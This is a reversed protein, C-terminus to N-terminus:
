KVLPSFGHGMAQHSIGITVFAHSDVAAVLDKVEGMQSRSITAMVMFHNEGTYGGTIEWYSVGKKLAAMLANSMLQPHNTVITVTRTTSPGELIFDGAAGGILLMLMSYLASEIGFVFGMCAIIGGDIMIYTSSLPLGTHKNIIRSLVSTGPYATGSRYILGGSIGGIIGGYVTNLMLNDTVPWTSFMPPLIELAVDILIAYLTAVVMARIVFKWGGLTYYGLIVMPISLVWYIMGPPWNTYYNIILAIGTTGGWSIHQPFQFLTYSIVGLGIGVLMLVTRRLENLMTAKSPLPFAKLTSLITHFRGNGAGIRQLSYKRNNYKNTTIM